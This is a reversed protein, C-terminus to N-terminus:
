PPTAEPTDTNATVSPALLLLLLLLLCCAAPHDEQPPDKSNVWFLQKHLHHDEGAPWVVARVLCTLMGSAWCFLM